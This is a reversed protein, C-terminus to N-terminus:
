MFLVYAYLIAEVFNLFDVESSFLTRGETFRLSRTYGHLFPVHYVM